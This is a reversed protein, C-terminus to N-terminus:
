HAALVEGRRNLCLSNGLLHSTADTPSDFSPAKPIRIFIAVRPRLNNGLTRLEIWSGDVRADGAAVWCDPTGARATFGWTPQGTGALLVDGITAVGGAIFDKVQVDGPRDQLTYTLPSSTGPQETILGAVAVTYTETATPTAPTAPPLLGCGAEVWLTLALGIAGSTRRM